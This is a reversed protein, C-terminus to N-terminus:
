AKRCSEREVLQVGLLRHEPGSDPRAIQRLLIQVAAEGMEYKPQHVTTLPPQLISALEVNDFGVLSLDDPIKKGNEILARIVGFAMADNATFVATVGPQSLLMKRAMTYGGQQNQDGHIVVAHVSNGAQHVAKLFGKARETLNGHQRPGTLHAINRHGLEILHQGALFGGQFNDASVSSISQVGESRNLLVLPVRYARLEEVEEESLGSVSNVILGDVQKAVLSRFYRMQRERDLDANGLILDYDAAFAADEAGRAVEAFFPNRVDSILLALSQSRGTALGRAVRNPVYNLRKAAALVKQRTEDNVGYSGSLSRSVTSVNVGCERAIDHITVRM